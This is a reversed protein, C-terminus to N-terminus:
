MSHTSPFQYVVCFMRFAFCYGCICNIKLLVSSGCNNYSRKQKAFSPIPCFKFFFSLYMAILLEVYLRVINILAKKIHKPKNFVISWCAFFFWMELCIYLYFLFIFAILFHKLICKKSSEM